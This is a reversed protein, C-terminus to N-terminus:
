SPKKGQRLPLGALAAELRRLARIYRKKAAEVQIGLVQAAEHSSLQEFHRLALAERDLPELEDLAVQLRLLMEQKIAANSPSTGSDVFQAALAESSAEALSGQGRKGERRADRNRARLHRRHFSQVKQVALFRLWLPLPMSPSSLYRELRRSAEVYTEQVVDSPDVRGRIRHDLRLAAVRRLRERHDMFLRALLEQRNERGACQLLQDTESSEVAM